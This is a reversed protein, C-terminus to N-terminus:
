KTKSKQTEDTLDTEFNIQLLGQFGKTKDWILAQGARLASYGMMKHWSDLPCLSPLFRVKIGRYEQIMEKHFHGCHIERFKTQAFMEPQETAMILPLDAHKEKDGHTWMLMNTGYQYYKRYEGNNNVSVSKNESYYAKLVDGIYFMREEDHNGNVIIVDVPAFKTLHNIGAILCNWYLRFSDQWNVDDEQPTGSTTSRRKGESNLGDNGIPFIFREIPFGKTREIILQIATLFTRIADATDIKGFHMDPLSIEVAIGENKNSSEVYRFYTNESVEGVQKLTNFFDEKFKELQQSYDIDFQLSERWSGDYLQWMKGSKLKGKYGEPTIVPQELNVTKDLTPNEARIKRAISRVREYNTDFKKAVESYGQNLYEPHQLIYDKIKQTDTM